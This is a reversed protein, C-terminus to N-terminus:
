GTLNAEREVTGRRGIWVGVLALACAIVVSSTVPRGAPAIWDIALAGIVQGAIAALALVLVGLVRVVHASVAIFLVGLPGGLYLWPDPFGDPRM